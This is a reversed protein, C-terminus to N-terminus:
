RDSRADSGGHRECGKEKGEGEKTKSGRGEPNYTGNDTQQVKKEKM